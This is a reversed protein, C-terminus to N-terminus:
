WDKAATTSLKRRAKKSLPKPVQRTASTSLSATRLRSHRSSKIAKPFSYRAMFSLDAKAKDTAFVEAPIAMALTALSATKIFERRTLEQFMFSVKKNYIVLVGVNGSDLPM